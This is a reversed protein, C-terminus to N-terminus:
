CKEAKRRAAARVRRFWERRYVKRALASEEPTAYRNAHPSVPKGNPKPAIDEKRIKGPGRDFIEPRVSVLGRAKMLAVLSQPSM